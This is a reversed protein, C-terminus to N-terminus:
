AAKAVNWADLFAQESKHQVGDAHMVVEIIENFVNTDLGSEKALKFAENPTPPNQYIDELVRKVHTPLASRSAGQLFMEIQAREKEDIHGDCNACAIAVSEMAILINYFDSNERLKALAVELREELDRTRQEYEAKASQEGYRQGKEEAKKDSDDYYEAVGGAAAGVGAAVAAGIATVAGIPGAVPLAVVAAVGACAGGLVKWFSM